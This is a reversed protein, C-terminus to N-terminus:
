HLWLVLHLLSDTQEFCDELNVRDKRCVGCLVLSDEFCERLVFEELLVLENTLLENSFSLVNNNAM